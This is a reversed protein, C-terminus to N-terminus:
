PNFNQHSQHFNVFFFNGVICLVNSEDPSPHGKPANVFLM